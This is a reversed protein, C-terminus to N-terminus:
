ESIRSDLVDWVSHLRWRRDFTSNLVRPEVNNYRKFRADDALEQLELATLTIQELHHQLHTFYKSARSTQKLADNDDNGHYTNSELVM